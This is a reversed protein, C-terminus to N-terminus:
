KDKGIIETSWNECTDADRNQEIPETCYDELPDSLEVVMNVLKENSSNNLLWVSAGVAQKCAGVMTKQEATIRKVNTTAGEEPIEEAAALIRDVKQAFSKGHVLDNEVSAHTREFRDYAWWPLRKKATHRASMFRAFSMKRGLPRTAALQKTKDWVQQDMDMDDRFEHGMALLMNKLNKVESLFLPLTQNYKTFCSKIAGRLECDRTEEQDLGFPVNWSIAMSQFLGKLSAAKMAGDFSCDCTHPPDPRRGFHLGFKYQAAMNGSLEDSGLDSAVAFWPWTKWSKWM